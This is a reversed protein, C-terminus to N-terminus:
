PESFNMKRLLEKFRPNSRLFYFPRDYINPTALVRLHVMEMSREQYAKELWVIAEEQDGLGAMVLGVDFSVINNSNRLEGLLKRAQQPDGSRALVFALHAKFKGFAPYMRIATRFQGAAKDLEGGDMYVLGFQFQTLPIDPDMQVVTKMRDIAEQHQGSYELIWAGHGVDPLSLPDASKAREVEAHVEDLKGVLLLHRALSLHAYAYSPNLAVARRFEREAATWDWEYEQSLYGLVVHAEPLSEDQRLAETVAVRAKGLADNRERVAYWGGLALYCDAIQAQAEPYFPSIRIAENFFDLAQTITEPTSKNSYYRGKLYAEYAAPDVQRGREALRPQGSVRASIQQGVHLAIERQLLLVDKLDREYSEAWLHRDTTARILQVTVRARDNARMVSGTLVADAGLQRAIEPVPITSNKFRMVSGRSIVQVDGLKALETILEDTMGDAFYEQGADGSLNALPLVAITRIKGEAIPSARREDSRRSVVAAALALSAAFALALVILARKHSKVQTLIYEASSAPLARVIATDAPANQATAKAASKAPLTSPGSLALQLTQHLRKLDILLDKITPYREDRNKALTRKVIEELGAPVEDSHGSLTPAPEKSLIGSIIENSTGAIFPSCGTVMEYLVVGLSWIDTREDITDGRAQEPSMYAVTGIVVGPATDAMIATAVKSDASADRPSRAAIKALGFDLVKLLGDETRIMINEPKIDRHVIKVRHAAVLASAVQTAIEIAEEIDVNSRLRERLTQGEIFETAIFRHGDAEGIEYITLINPHNLASAARAEQEFRRLRERDNTFAGPLFKLSVKRNLKTDEALYVQGMGGEGIKSLIRYHALQQGPTFDLKDVFMEAAAQFAPRDVFNGTEDHSKILSQVAQRLSDNGDCAHDLYAPREAPPLAVAAEFIKKLSEWQSEGM